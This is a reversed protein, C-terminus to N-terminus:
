PRPEAPAAPRHVRILHALLVCVGYLILYALSAFFYYGVYDQMALNASVVLSQSVLVVPVFLLLIHLFRKAASPLAKPLFVGFSFGFVASALFLMGFKSLLDEALPVLVQTEDSVQLTMLWVEFFSGATYFCLSRFASVAVFRNRSVPDAKSM